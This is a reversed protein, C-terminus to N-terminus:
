PFDYSLFFIEYTGEDVKYEHVPVFNLKKLMREIKSKNVGLWEHVEIILKPKFKRLTNIGGKLVEVESGEVDVKILNVRKLSLKRVINDITVAKIEYVNDGNGNFAKDFSIINGMKMKISTSKSWVAKNFAVINKFRNIKINKTLLNFAQNNPEFALVKGNEGVLKSYILTYVGISAGIDFVIDDKKPLFDKFKICEKTTYMHSILMISENSFYYKVGWLNIINKKKLHCTLMYEVKKSDFFRLRRTIDLIIIM